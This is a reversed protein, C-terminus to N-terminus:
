NEFLNILDILKTREEESINSGYILNIRYNAIRFFLGEKLILLIESNEYDVEHLDEDCSEDIRLIQSPHLHYLETLCKILKVNNVHQRIVYRSFCEGFLHIFLKGWHIDEHEDCGFLDCNERSILRELFKSKFLDTNM